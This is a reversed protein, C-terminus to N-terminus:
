APAPGDGGRLRETWAHLLAVAARDGRIRPQGGPPVPEGRLAADLAERSRTVTADPGPDPVDEAVTAGGGDAVTLRWRGGGEGTVEQVVSFAHGRTWAPDLARALIRWVDAPEIRAGAAAVDPLSPPAAALAALAHRGESRRRGTVRLPGTFRRVPPGQGALLEALPAAAASVRFATERRPRPRELPRVTAAGDRVAVAFVGAEALVLDYDLPGPLVLGQAPLLAALV